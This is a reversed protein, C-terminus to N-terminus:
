QKFANKDKIIAFAKFEPGRRQGRIANNRSFKNRFFAPMRMTDWNNDDVSKAHEVIFTDGNEYTKTTLSDLNGSEVKM